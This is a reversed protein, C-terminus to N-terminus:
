PAAVAEHQDAALFAHAIVAYGATNPHKDPGRPPAACAWTWQCIAAVNRPLRGLRPVMVRRAFDASRFAGSVDAVRAGFSAYVRRLMGDYALALRESLRALEHQRWGYRWEPLEPDYYSMGIITVRSGAAARLRTM